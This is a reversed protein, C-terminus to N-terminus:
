NISIPPSAYCKATKRGAGFYCFFYFIFILLNPIVHCGFFTWEYKFWEYKKRCKVIMCFACLYTVFMKLWSCIWTIITYCIWIYINICYYREEPSGRILPYKKHRINGNLMYIDSQHPCKKQPASTDGSWLKWQIYPLCLNKKSTYLEVIIWM